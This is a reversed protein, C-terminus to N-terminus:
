DLKYLSKPMKPEHFGILFCKDSSAKAVEKALGGIMNAVKEKTSSGMSKNMLNKM